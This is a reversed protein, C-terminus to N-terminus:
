ISTSKSVIARASESNLIGIGIDERKLVQSLIFTSLRESSVFANVLALVVTVTRDAYFRCKLSYTSLLTDYPQPESDRRRKNASAKRCVVNLDLSSSDNLKSFLPAHRRTQRRQISWCRSWEIRPLRLPTRNHSKLTSSSMGECGLICDQIYFRLDITWHSFLHAEPAGTQLFCRALAKVWGTM